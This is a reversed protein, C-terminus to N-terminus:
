GMGSEEKIVLKLQHNLDINFNNKINTLRSIIYACARKILLNPEIKHYEFRLNVFKKDDSDIQFANQLSNWIADNYGIGLIGTAEMIFTEKPRLYIIPIPNYKKYIDSEVDNIKFSADHTTIYKNENTNNTKNLYLLVKKENKHPVRVYKDSIINENELYDIDPDLFIPINSVHLRMYDNNYATTTNTIINIKSIHYAYTPIYKFCIRRLCNIVEHSHINKDIEYEVFGNTIGAFQKYAIQKM